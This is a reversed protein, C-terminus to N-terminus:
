YGAATWLPRESCPRPVQVNVRGGVVWLASKAVAVAVVLISLWPSPSLGTSRAKIETSNQGTVQRLVCQRGVNRENWRVEKKESFCPEKEYVM